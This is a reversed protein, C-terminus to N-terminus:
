GGKEDAPDLGRLLVALGGLFEEDRSVGRAHRATEAMYPFEGPPLASIAVTGEGSLPGLHELQIAGIVYGLLGRLAIVRREGEFGAETLIALVAESWRLGARSRHRHTVTLPVVAPHASVADRLRRVMAEIRDPWPANAPPPASDVAGLVLEVVLGELQERDDVYRYLAMTSTGLEQAVARMSLGAVGERDIVALAASALQDHTLSRPRPM